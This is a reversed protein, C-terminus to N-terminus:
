VFIPLYIYHLITLLYYSVLVRSIKMEVNRLGFVLSNFSLNFLLKLQTGTMISIYILALKDSM